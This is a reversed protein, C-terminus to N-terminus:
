ATRTILPQSREVPRKLCPQKRYASQVFGARKWVPNHGAPSVGPLELFSRIGRRIPIKIECIAFDVCPILFLNNPGTGCCIRFILRKGPRFPCGQDLERFASRLVSAFLTWKCVIRFPPRLDHLRTEHCRVHRTVISM